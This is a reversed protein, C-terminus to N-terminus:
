AARPYGHRDMPWTTHTRGDPATWTCVGLPDM